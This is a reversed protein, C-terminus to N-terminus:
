SCAGRHSQSFTLRLPGSPCFKDGQCVLSTVRLDGYTNFGWRTVTRLMEDEVETPAVLEGACGRPLTGEPVLQM